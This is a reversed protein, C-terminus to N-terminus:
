GFQSSNFGVKEEKLCKKCKRKTVFELMKAKRPQFPSGEPPIWGSGTPLSRKEITQWVHTTEGFPELISYNRMLEKRLNELGDVKEDVLKNFGIKLMKLREILNIVLNYRNVSLFKKPRSQWDKLFEIDNEISSLRKSVHSFEDLTNFIRRNNDIALDFRKKYLLFNKEYVEKLLWCKPQETMLEDIEVAM